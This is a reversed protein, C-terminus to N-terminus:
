ATATSSTRWRWCRRATASWRRPASTSTWRRAAPWCSARVRGLGAGIATSLGVASWLSYRGGVWDWFAFVRDEAVGFKGAGELNASVAALHQNAGAEGLTAALWARAANGNVLTEETTFSKSVVIM